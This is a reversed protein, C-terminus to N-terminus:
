GFYRACGSGHAHLDPHKCDLPINFLVNTLASSFVNASRPSRPSTTFILCRPITGEQSASTSGPPSLVVMPRSKTRSFMKASILVHTSSAASGLRPVQAPM